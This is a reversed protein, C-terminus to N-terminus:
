GLIIEKVEAPLMAFGTKNGKSDVLDNNVSLRACDYGLAQIREVKSLKTIVPTIVDPKTKAKTIVNRKKPKYTEAEAQLDPPTPSM